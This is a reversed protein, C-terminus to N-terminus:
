QSSEIDSYKDSLEVEDETTETNVPSRIQSSQETGAHNKYSLVTHHTLRKRSLSRNTIDIVTLKIFSIQTTSTM